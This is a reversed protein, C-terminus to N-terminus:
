CEQVFVIVLIMCEPMLMNKCHVIGLCMGPIELALGCCMCTNCEQGKSKPFSAIWAEQSHCILGDALVPAEQAMEGTGQM